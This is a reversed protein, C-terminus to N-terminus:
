AEALEKIAQLELDSDDVVPKIIYANQKSPWHKRGLVEQIDSVYPKFMDLSCLYDCAQEKTMPKPLDIINIDIDGQKQLNKIRLVRDSCLRVKVKGKFKSIGAAVIM